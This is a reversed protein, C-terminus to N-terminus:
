LKIITFKLTVRVNSSPRPTKSLANGWPFRVLSVLILFSRSELDCYVRCMDCM